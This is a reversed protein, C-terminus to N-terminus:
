PIDVFLEVVPMVIEALLIVFVIEPKIDVMRGEPPSGPNLIPESTGMRM